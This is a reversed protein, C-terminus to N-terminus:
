PFLFKSCSSYGNFFNKPLYIGIKEEFESCFVTTHEICKEEDENGSCFDIYEFNISLQELMEYPYSSYDLATQLIRSMDDINQYKIRIYYSHLTYVPINEYTIFIMSGSAIECVM